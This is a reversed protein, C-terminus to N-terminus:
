NIKEQKNKEITNNKKSIPTRKNDGSILRNITLQDLTVQPHTLTHYQVIMSIMDSKTTTLNENIVSITAHKDDLDKKMKEINVENETSKKEIEKQIQEIKEIKKTMIEQVKGLTEEHKELRSNINLVDGELKKSIDDIKVEITDSNKIQNERLLKLEKLILLETESPKSTITNYSPKSSQITNTITDGIKHNIKTFKQEIAKQYIDCGRFTPVHEGGCNSCCPKINKCENKDHNEGCKKCKKDNKCDKAKHGFQWCNFCTLIHLPANYEEVKYSNYDHLLGNKLLNEKIDANKCIVGVIKKPKEIIKKNCTDEQNNKETMGATESRADGQRRENLQRFIDFIGEIGIEKFDKEYKIAEEYTLGKVVVKKDSTEDKILCKYKCNFILSNNIIKDIVTKDNSYIILNNNLSVNFTVKQQNIDNKKLEEKILNNDKRFKDDLDRILIKFKATKQYNDSSPKSNYQISKAM